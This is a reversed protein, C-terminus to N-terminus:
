PSAAPALLARLRPAIELPSGPGHISGEIRRETGRGDDGPVVFLPIMQSAYGAAAIREGDRSLDLELLALPGLELDLDGRQAAAHFYGCPECWPAGVYVLPTRGEARAALVFSRVVTALDGPAATEFRIRPSPAPALEAAASPPIATSPQPTCAGLATVLATLPPIFVSLHRQAMPPLRLRPGSLPAIEM